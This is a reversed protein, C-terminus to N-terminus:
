IMMMLRSYEIVFSIIKMDILLTISHLYKTPTHMIFNGYFKIRQGSWVHQFETYQVTLLCQLASKVIIRVIQLVTM